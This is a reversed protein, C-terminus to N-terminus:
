LVKTVVSGAGITCGNGVTIGPLFTVNGGVWCDDGLTITGGM